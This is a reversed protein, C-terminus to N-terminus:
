SALTRAWVIICFRRLSGGPVPFKAASSAFARCFGDAEVADGNVGPGPEGSYTAIDETRVGPATSSSAPVGRERCDEVALVALLEDVDLLEEIDELWSQSSSSPPLKRIFLRLGGM